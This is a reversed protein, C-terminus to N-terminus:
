YFSLPKSPGQKRWIALVFAWFNCFNWHQCGLRLRPKKSFGLRVEVRFKGFVWGFFVSNENCIQNKEM